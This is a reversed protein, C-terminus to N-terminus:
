TDLLGRTVRCQPYNLCGYFQQGAYRGRQATRLVMPIECHPCLPVAPIPVAPISATASAEVQTALLRAVLHERGWLEVGTSRALTRAQATFDRNTVVMAATCDYMSKAAIVEQVAKVGVNKTYRKAQMVTRTGDKSVVLDGGFDGVAGVHTVQYGLARFLVVLRREFEAGTMEDIEHIGSRALRQTEYWALALRGVLIAAFITWLPWWSLFKLGLGATLGDLVHNLGL